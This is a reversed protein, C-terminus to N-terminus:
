QHGCPLKRGWPPWMQRAERSTDRGKRSSSQWSLAPCVGRRMAQESPSVRKHVGFFFGDLWPLSLITLISSCSAELSTSMLLLHSPWSASLRVDPDLHRCPKLGRMAAAMAPKLNQTLTPSSKNCFITNIKGGPRPASCSGQGQPSTAPYSLVAAPM